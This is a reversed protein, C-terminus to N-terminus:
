PSKDHCSRYNCLSRTQRHLFLVAPTPLNLFHGVSSFCSFSFANRTRQYPRLAVSCITTTRELHAMQKGSGGFINLEVVEFQDNGDQRIPNKLRTGNLPFSDIKYCCHFEAPIYSQFVTTRKWASKPYIAFKCSMHVGGHDSLKTDYDLGKKIISQSYKRTKKIALFPMISATGLTWYM